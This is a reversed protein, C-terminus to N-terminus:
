VPTQGTQQTLPMEEASARSNQTCGACGHGGKEKMYLSRSRTEDAWWIMECHKIIDKNRYQRYGKHWKILVKETAGTPTRGDFISKEQKNKLLFTKPIFLSTGKYLCFLLTQVKNKICRGARTKAKKLTINRQFCSLISEAAATTDSRRVPEAAWRSMALYLSFM